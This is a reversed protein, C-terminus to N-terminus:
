LIFHKVIGYKVTNGDTAFARFYYTIGPTIYTISSSFSGIKNISGKSIKNQNYDPNSTTTSWCFGYDIVPPIGLSVINGQLVASGSNFSFTDTTVALDPLYLTLRHGYYIRSEDIKLYSRVYYNKNLQLNSLISTFNSDHDLSGFTTKNKNISPFTDTSWCHGYDPISLSGVNKIQGFAKASSTSLIKVSDTSVSIGTIPSIFTKNEGYVLDDSSIAYARVYYTKGPQLNILIASFDGTNDSRHLSIVNDATTPNQNESWCFGHDEIGNEGLDIIVGNASITTNNIQIDNTIIAIKRGNELKHCSNFFNLM